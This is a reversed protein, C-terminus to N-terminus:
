PEDRGVEAAGTIAARVALESDASSARDGQKGKLVGEPSPPASRLHMITTHLLGVPVAQCPPQGPKMSACWMLKMHEQLRDALEGRTAGLETNPEDLRHSPGSQPSAAELSMIARVADDVVSMYTPADDMADRRAARVVDHIILQLRVFHQEEPTRDSMFASM